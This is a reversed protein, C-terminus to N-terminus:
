WWFCYGNVCGAADGCAQTCYLGSPQSACRVGCMEIPEDGFLEEIEDIEAPTFYQTLDQSVPPLTEAVEAEELQAPQLDAEPAPVDAAFGPVTLLCTLTALLLSRRLVNSM